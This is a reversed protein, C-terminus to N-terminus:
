RPRFGEQLRAVLSLPDLHAECVELDMMAELAHV